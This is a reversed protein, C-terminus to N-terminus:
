IKSLLKGDLWISQSVTEISAMKWGKPGRIWDVKSGLSEYCIPHPLGDPGGAIGTLRSDVTLHAVKGDLKISKVVPKWAPNRLVRMKGTFGSIAESRGIKAKGPAKAWFDPAFGAEFSKADKRSFALSLAACRAEIAKRAAAEDGKGLPMLLIWLLADGM